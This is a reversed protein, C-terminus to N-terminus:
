CFWRLRQLRIKPLMRSSSNTCAFDGTPISRNVLERLRRGLSDDSGTPAVLGGVLPFLSGEKGAGGKVRDRFVRREPSFLGFVTQILWERGAADDPIKGKLGNDAAKDVDFALHKIAQQLAPEREVDPAVFNQIVFVPVIRGVNKGVLWPNGIRIFEVSKSAAGSAM